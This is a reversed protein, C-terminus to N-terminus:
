QETRCCIVRTPLRRTCRILATGASTDGGLLWIQGSSDVTSSFDYRGAPQNSVAQLTNLDAFDLGLFM